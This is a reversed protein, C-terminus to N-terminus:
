ANVLPPRHLVPHSSYILLLAIEKKPNNSLQTGSKALWPSCCALSGQGESEGPTREFEHGKLWHHWEFIEKETVGKEEQGWDKGADPDKGILWTKMDPPWLIPAEAEANTRGIFVWPQSRETSVAQIEESDLLSQLTKELVVIWFCWSKLALDEKHDLAWM